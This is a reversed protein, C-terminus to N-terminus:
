IHKWNERNVIHSVLRQSVGFELGIADQSIGGDAYRSRIEIVEDEILKSSGHSSGKQRAARGKYVMDNANDQNTGAFLHDPNVCAPNDCRHLVCLGEEVQGNALFYAIRHALYHKGCLKFQGYGKVLGATWKWCGGDPGNGPSRDIKKWFNRKNKETLDPILMPKIKM